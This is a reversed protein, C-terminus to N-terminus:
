RSKNSDNRNLNLWWMEKQEFANVICFFAAMKIIRWWVNALRRNHKITFRADEIQRRSNMIDFSFHLAILDYINGDTCWPPVSRERETEREIERIAKNVWFRIWKRDTPCVFCVFCVFSSLLKHVYMELMLFTAVM